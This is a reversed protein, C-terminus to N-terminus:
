PPHWERNLLTKCKGPNWSILAPQVDTNGKCADPVTINIDINNYQLVPVPALYFSVDCFQQIRCFFFVFM